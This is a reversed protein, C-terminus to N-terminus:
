RVEGTEIWHQVGAHLMRRQVAAEDGYPVGPNTVLWGLLQAANAALMGLQRRGSFQPATFFLAIVEALRPRPVVECITRLHRWHTPSAM